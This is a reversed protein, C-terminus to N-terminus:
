DWELDFTTNRSNMFPSAGNKRGLKLSVTSYDRDCPSGTRAGPPCRPPVIQGGRGWKLLRSRGCRSVLLSLGDVDLKKLERRESGFMAAM